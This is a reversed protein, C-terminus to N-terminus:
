LVIAIIIAAAAASGAATAIIKPIRNERRLRSLEDEHQRKQDERERRSQELQSTLERNLAQAEELQRLTEAQAQVVAERAATAAVVPLMEHDSLHKTLLEHQRIVRPILEQNIRDQEKWFKVREAIPTPDGNNEQGGQAARSGSFSGPGEVQSGQLQRQRLVTEVLEQVTDDKGFRYRHEDGHTSTIVLTRGDRRVLNLDDYRLNLVLGDSGSAIIMRQDTVVIVKSEFDFGAVAVPREDDRFLADILATAEENMDEDGIYAIDAEM